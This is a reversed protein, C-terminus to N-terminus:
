VVSGDPLIIDDNYDIFDAEKLEPLKAMECYRNCKHSLGFTKIAKRCFNGLCFLSEEDIHFDASAIEPDTLKYEFGQTDTLLLRENSHVFSFHALCYAKLKEENYTASMCLGDNNMYKSFEGDIKEEITVFETTNGDKLKGDKLKGYYIKVYSFKPLQPDIESLKKAFYDSLHVMQVCTKTHGELTQNRDAVVEKAKENCRKLVWDREIFESESHKSSAM